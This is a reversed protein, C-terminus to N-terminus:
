RAGFTIVRDSKLSADVLQGLGSLEFRDNLSHQTREYRAAEQENIVGRKIGAGICVVFDIEHQQKLEHWAKPLLDDDQPSVVLSSGNTAGDHYFFIRYISHGRSLAAQIFQYASYPAQSSHPAGYVVISYIM